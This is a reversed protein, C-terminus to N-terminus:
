NNSNENQKNALLDDAILRLHGAEKNTLGKVYLNPADDYGLLYNPTTKLKVCIKDLIDMSPTIYGTEYNNISGISKGLYTGLEKPTIHMSERLLNMRDGRWM